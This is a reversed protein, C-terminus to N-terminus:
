GPILPYGARILLSRVLYLPLGIVSSWSGEIRSVWLSARGQLAYAGAKDMPEGSRVYSAIEADTVEGFTVDSRDSDTFVDGAPSIVTVGTYVQHTHGSLRRLMAAAEEPSAPKGLTKGDLEVLTDAALIYRGPCIGRVAAAKRASLIRVASSAPADCREDVEAASLDFPIGARTLLERRRPSASALVITEM